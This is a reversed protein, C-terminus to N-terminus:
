SVETVTHRSKWEMTKAAVGTVTIIANNGGDVGITADFNVDSEIDTMVDQVAELVAIGASRRYVLAAKKYAVQDAGNTSFGVIDVEVLVSTDDPIPITAITPTTAGTTQVTRYAEGNVSVLSGAAAIRAGIIEGCVLNLVGAAQVDYASTGGNIRGAIIHASPVGSGGRLIKIAEGAVDLDAVHLRIDPNASGTQNMGLGISTAGGIMKEVSLEAKANSLVDICKGTDTEIVGIRGRIVGGGAFVCTGATNIIRDIDVVLEGVQMNICEQSTMEMLECKLYSIGAGNRECLERTASIMRRFTWSCSAPMQTLSSPTFSAHPAYVNVFAKGILNETYLGDDVCVITVANAEDAPTGAATLAAGFTLFADGPTKGTNSDNGHKGVYLTQVHDLPPESIRAVSGADVTRTGTIDACVLDLLGNATVNFAATGGNLRSVVATVHPATTFGSFLIGTGAVDITGVVARLWGAGGGTSRSELGSSGADGTISGIVLDATGAVQCYVGKGSTVALSGIRGKAEGGQIDVCPGSTATIQDAELIVTGIVVRIACLTTAIIEDCRLYATGTGTPKSCAIGTTTVLRRFTWHSDDRIFNSGTGCNVTALPAYINVFSVGALVEVYEGDDLCVISVAASESGPTGAAAIAAGFTLFADANTKGANGDNGHKGVYLLQVADPFKDSGSIHSSVHAQAVATHKSWWGNGFGSGTGDSDNPQQDGSSAQEDYSYSASESEVFRIQRDPRTDGKTVAVLATLDAVSQGVTVNSAGGAMDVLEVVGDLGHGDAPVADFTRRVLFRQM